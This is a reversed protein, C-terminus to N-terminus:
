QWATPLTSGRHQCYIAEMTASTQWRRQCHCAKQEQETTLGFLLEQPLLRKASLSRQCKTLGFLSSLISESFPLIRKKEYHEDKQRKPRKEPKNYKAITQM